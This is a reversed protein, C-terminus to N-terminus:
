TPFNGKFRKAAREEETNEVAVDTTTSYPRKLPNEQDYQADLQQQLYPTFTPSGDTRLINGNEHLSQLFEAQTASYPPFQPSVSPSQPEEDCLPASPPIANRPVDGSTFQWPNPCHNTYSHTHYPLPFQPAGGLFMPNQSLTMTAPNTCHYFPNSSFNRFNSNVNTGILDSNKFIHEAQEIITKIESLKNQKTKIMEIDRSAISKLTAIKTLVLDAMQSENEIFIADVDKGTKVQSDLNKALQECAHYDWCYSGNNNYNHIKYTYRDRIIAKLDNLLHTEIKTIHAVELAYKEDVIDKPTQGAHNTQEPDIVNRKLLVQLTTFHENKTVLHLPNNGADDNIFLNAGIAFLTDLNATEGLRAANLVLNPNNNPDAGKQLLLRMILHNKNQFSMNFLRNLTEPNIQHCCEFLCNVATMNGLKVAEVLLEDFDIVNKDQLREFLPPLYTIKGTKIVIKLMKNWQVNDLELEDLLINMSQIQLNSAALDIAANQDADLQMLPMNNKILWKVVEIQGKIAAEHLATRNKINAAFMNAKRALLESMIQVHGHKAALIFPTNGENDKCEINTMCGLLEIAKDLNGTSVAALLDKEYYGTYYNVYGLM